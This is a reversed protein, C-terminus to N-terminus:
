WKLGFREGGSKRELGGQLPKTRQPVIRATPQEPEEADPLEAPVALAQAAKISLGIRQNERDISLVKVPVQQGERLFAGVKHVRHPAIESIHILGEVGPALKAFAGFEMIKSISAEAVSGVPFRTEINEWPDELLDRYSLGIKGTTPDIKEIRVRVRQGEELVESPHNVRDWSLQSVHILGDIGGLDVFAGFNQLRRVIGERIQGVELEALLKTRAEEQARELVARHSLVLNRREPNAETVLCQLTQGVYSELDETRFLSVQSAPIFGRIHKIECELGGKNHGTIRAEIVIGEALDSWDQVELSAGPVIVEYLNDEPLYRTPIVELQAGPEPLAAFQRRSAIGEQQPSLSVFVFERDIKIVRAMRREDLEIGQVATKERPRVEAKLLEDISLDGLAEDIEAQLDASIRKVPSAPFLQEATREHADRSDLPMPPEPTQLPAPDPQFPVSPAAMAPQPRDVTAAGEPEVAPQSAEQGASGTDPTEPRADRQSGIKIPARSLAEKPEAPANSPTASAPDTADPREPATM